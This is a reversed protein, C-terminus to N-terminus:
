LHTTTTQPRLWHAIRRDIPGLNLNLIQHVLSV